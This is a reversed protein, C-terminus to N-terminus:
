ICNIESDTISGILTNNEDTIYGYSNGGDCTDEVTYIFSLTGIGKVQITSSSLADECYTADFEGILKKVESSTMLSDSFKPASDKLLLAGPIHELDQLMLYDSNSAQVLQSCVSAQVMFSLTFLSIALLYKM